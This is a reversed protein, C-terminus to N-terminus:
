DSEVPIAQGSRVMRDFIARDRASMIPGPAEGRWATPLSWVQGQADRWGVVVVETSSGQAGVPPLLSPGGLAIWVLCVAIVTLVARTYRDGM